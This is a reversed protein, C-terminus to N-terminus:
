GDFVIQRVPTKRGKSKERLHDSVDMWRIDGDSTRIVLMVPYAQHFVVIGFSTASGCRDRVLHGM